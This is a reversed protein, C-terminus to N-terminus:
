VCINRINQLRSEIAHMCAAEIRGKRRAVLAVLFGTCVRRHPHLECRVAQRSRCRRRMTNSYDKTKVQQEYNHVTSKRSLGDRQMTNLPRPLQLLFCEAYTSGDVGMM